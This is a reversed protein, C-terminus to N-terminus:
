RISYFRLATELLLAQYLVIAFLCTILVHAWPMDYQTKHQQATSPEFTRLKLAQRKVFWIAASSISAGLLLGGLVDSFWHVGLLVRSSAVLGILLLALVRITKRASEKTIILMLVTVGIFVSLGSTHGSPFSATSTEGLILDPRPINFSSKLLHTTISTAIGAAALTLAMVRHRNFLMILVTSVFLLTLLAEDGILTTMVLVTDITQNRLSAAMAFLWVDLRDFYGAIVAISLGVFMLASFIFVRKLTSPNLARKGTLGFLVLWPALALVLGSVLWASNATHVGSFLSQSLEAGLYGPLVYVPAWALASVLNIAIFKSAPMRLMGATIPLVPRLPGVFRGIVVSISGYRDIFAEGKAMAEPYRSFPWVGTLKEHFARGIFFSIVDGAVAGVFACALVDFLPINSLSAAAAASFLLAVGPVVIGAIAFSEIFAIAVVAPLIFHSHQSLWLNLTELENM